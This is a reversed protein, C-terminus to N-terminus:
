ARCGGFEQTDDIAQSAAADRQEMLNVANCLEDFPVQYIEENLENFEAVTLRYEAFDELVGVFRQLALTDM